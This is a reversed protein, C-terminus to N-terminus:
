ILHAEKETKCATCKRYNCKGEPLCENPFSSCMKPRSEYINCDKTEKNFNKCTYFRGELKKVTNLLDQNSVIENFTYLADIEELTMDKPIVMNAVQLLETAIFGSKSGKYSYENTEHDYIEEIHDFGNLEVKKIKEIKDSSFRLFFTECCHGTCRM